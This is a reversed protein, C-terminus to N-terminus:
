GAPEPQTAATVEALTEAVRQTEAAGICQYIVLAQHLHAAGIQIDLARLQCRGIGELARAEELPSHIERALRLAELHHVVAEDHRSHDLVRAGACNLTSAANLRDGVDRYIALAQAMLSSGSQHDGSLCRVDGLRVLVNAQGVRLELSRYITLAEILSATASPLDGTLTHVTGLRTLANAEGLRSGIDRVLALAGVLTEAAASYDGTLQRVRGLETLVGAQGLRDDLDRYRAMADNLSAGANAYRGMLLEVIGLSTLANAEGLRHGLEQYRGLAATLSASASQYDDSLYQVVGLQNLANAEGLRDGVDGFLTLAQMLSRTADVHQDNVYRVIGLDHLANAQGVKNDLGRYLTLAETLSDNAAPYEGKVYQMIGLENLANAQGLRDGNLGAVTLAVNHIALAQDWHGTIRLFSHIAHALHTARAPRGHIAAHDLCATLNAREAELWALAAGQTSLDPTATPLHEVTSVVPDSRQAILRDAIRAAHLYYDILRDLAADNSRADDDSALARAFTHILDHLRYRGPLPEDVLHHDYLAELMRRSEALAVDDLAAAAHVDIERGPHLGLRRFLRRLDASLDRYSLEFAAKVAINEAQLETLRDQADRVTDALYRVTWAPHSRLRGALLGIALPLHGGLEVLRSIAAPEAIGARGGILRAFLEAAHAPRLTGLTLAEAAGLAALRRRSTILVLCGAAGPLLLRVQEHGAADDLVILMKRGAVRDRWLAARADLDRPIVEAAVGITLLLTALADTPAVPRQGATHAHLDLFLQGDPFMNALRHAVHVAFATKGVGAMGDIASIIVVQRSRGTDSVRAILQDLEEGRGTFSDVDRPLTRTAAATAEPRSGLQVLAHLVSLELEAPSSVWAVTIGVEDLLRRRFAQQRASREAPEDTPTRPAAEERILFILRPLGLRTATEFELETYSIDLRDRVPTGHRVGIVGVYAHAAAVRAVCSDAPETNSAAFYAMDTVAHGARIVAAEAADVFSRDAPLERLESTHSLFIRLAGGSTTAGSAGGTRVM